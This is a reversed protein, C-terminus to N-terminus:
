SLFGAFHARDVKKALGDGVEGLAVIQDTADLARVDDPSIHKCGVAELGGATLEVDYRVYTFLRDGTGKPVGFPLSGFVNEALTGVERDVWDGYRCHGFARCLLDQFHVASNMLSDITALASELKNPDSTEIKPILHPFTGTGVSVILLKEKGTPWQLKYPDLTAQLFLQFAPNNFPTIGGDAFVHTRGAMTIREPPFYTPAATSARVLQWLPLDLNSATSTRGPGGRQNYKAGPHNSVPWPSDSTVNHMVMLLLSQLRTSGLTVPEGHSSFVKRLRQTLPWADYGHKLIADLFGAKQFMEEGGERYFTDMEDASMGWAICAALIAGTSTGAVYDFYHCLRFDPGASLEARLLSEMRKLVQITIVGRIGGGDLSLLRRHGTHPALKEQLTRRLIPTAM